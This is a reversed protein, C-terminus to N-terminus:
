HPPCKASKALYNHCPVNPMSDRTQCINWGRIVPSSGRDRQQLVYASKM